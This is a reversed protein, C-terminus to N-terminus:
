SVQTDLWNLSIRFIALFMTYFLYLSSSSQLSDASIGQVCYETVILKYFLGNELRCSFFDRHLFSTASVAYMGTGGSKIGEQLNVPGPSHGFPADFFMGFFYCFVCYHYRYCHYLQVTAQFLYRRDNENESRSRNLSGGDTSNATFQLDGLTAQVTKGKKLLLLPLLLLLTVVFISCRSFSRFYYQFYCYCSWHYLVLLSVVVLRMVNIISISLDVLVLGGLWLSISWVGTNRQLSNGM